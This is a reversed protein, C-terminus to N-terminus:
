ITLTNPAATQIAVLIFFSHLLSIFYINLFFFVCLSVHPVHFLFLFAILYPISIIPHSFWICVCVLHQFNRRRIEVPETSYNYVNSKTIHKNNAQFITFNKSSLLLLVGDDDGDSGGFQNFEMKRRKSEIALTLWVNRLERLGLRMRMGIEIRKEGWNKMKWWTKVQVKRQQQQQKKRIEGNATPTDKAHYIEHFIQWEVEFARGCWMQCIWNALSFEISFSVFVRHIIFKENTATTTTIFTNKM